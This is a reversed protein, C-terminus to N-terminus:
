AVAQSRRNIAPRRALRGCLLRGCRRTRTINFERAAFRQHGPIVRCARTSLSTLRFDRAESKSLTALYTSIM